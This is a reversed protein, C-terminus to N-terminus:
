DTASINAKYFQHSAIKGDLRENLLAWENQTCFTAELLDDTYTIEQTTLNVSAFFKDDLKCVLSQVKPPISKYSKSFSTM